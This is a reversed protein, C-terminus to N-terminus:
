TTRGSNKDQDWETGRGVDVERGHFAGSVREQPGNPTSRRVWYVGINDVHAKQILPVQTADQCGSTDAAQTLRVPRDRVVGVLGDVM